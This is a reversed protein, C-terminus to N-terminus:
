FGRIFEREIEVKVVFKQAANEPTKVVGFRRVDEGRQGGVNKALDILLEKAFDDPQRFSMAGDNLFFRLDFLGAANIVRGGVDDIVDDLVGHSLQKIFDYM